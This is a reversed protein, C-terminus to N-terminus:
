TPVDEEPISIENPRLHRVTGEKWVVISQGNRRHEELADRVAAKVAEDVVADDEFRSHGNRAGNGFSV